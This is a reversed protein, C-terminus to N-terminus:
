PFEGTGPACPKLNAPRPSNCPRRASHPLLSADSLFAGPPRYTPVSLPLWANCPSFSHSRHFQNSSSRHVSRQRGNWCHHGRVSRAPMFLDKLLTPVGVPVGESSLNRVFEPLAIGDHTAVLVCIDSIVSADTAPTSM